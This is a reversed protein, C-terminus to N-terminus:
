LQCKHANSPESSSTMWTATVSNDPHAKVALCGMYGVHMLQREACMIIIICNHKGESSGLQLHVQARKAPRVETKSYGHSRWEILCIKYAVFHLGTNLSVYTKCHSPQVSCLVVGGGHQLYVWSHTAIRFASFSQKSLYLEACLMRCAYVTIIYGPKHHQM